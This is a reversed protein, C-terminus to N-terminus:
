AVGVTSTFAQQDLWADLEDEFWGVSRLGLAVPKPFTPDFYRSSKQAKAYFSSRSIGLKLLAQKCRLVKRSSVTHVSGQHDQHSFNRSICLQDHLTPVSSNGPNVHNMILGFLRSTETACCFVHVKDYFVIACM